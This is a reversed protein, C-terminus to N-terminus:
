SRNPPVPGPADEGEDEGAVPAGPAVAVAPLGLRTPKALLRRLHAM